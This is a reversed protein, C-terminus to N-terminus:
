IGLRQSVAPRRILDVCFAYHGDEGNADYANSTILGYLAKYLDARQDFGPLLPGLAKSMQHEHALAFPGYMETICSAVAADFVPDGASSLFGFDIVAVPKLDSDVLINEPCIDGHILADDVSAFGLIADILLKRRIDFDPIDRALLHRFRESRRFAVRTIASGWPESSPEYLAHPEGLVKLHKMERTGPIKSLEMVVSAICDVVRNDLREADTKVHPKLPSGSLRREVSVSIDGCRAVHLIRPLRISVTESNASDYFSKLADLDELSKEFWLKAITSEGAEYVVGEMGRGLPDGLTLDHQRLMNAVLELQSFSISM